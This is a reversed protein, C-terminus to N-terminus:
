SSSTCKLSAGHVMLVSLTCCAEYVTLPLHLFGSENLNVHCQGLPSSFCFSFIRIDEDLARM